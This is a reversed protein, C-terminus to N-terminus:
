KKINSFYNLARHFATLIKKIGNKFDKESHNTSQIFITIMKPTLKLVSLHFLTLFLNKDKARKLELQFLREQWIKNTWTLFWIFTFDLYPNDWHAYKWDHVIVKRRNYVVNGSHMDGHTLCNNEDFLKSYKRFIESTKKQEGSKIIKKVVPSFELFYKIYEKASHRKFLKKDRARIKLLFKRSVDSRIFDLMDAIEKAPVKRYFEKGFGWTDGIRTGSIYERVLWEPRSKIDSACYKPTTFYRNLYFNDSLFKNLTVEKIFNERTVLHSYLRVKLYVKKGKKGLCISSYNHHNSSVNKLEVLKQKKLISKVRTPTAIM